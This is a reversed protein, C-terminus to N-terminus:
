ADEAVKKCISKAALAALPGFAGDVGITGPDVAYCVDGQSSGSKVRFRLLVIRYRLLRVDQKFTELVDACYFSVSIGSDHMAENVLGEVAIGFKNAAYLIAEM